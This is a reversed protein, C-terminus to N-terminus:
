KYLTLVIAICRGIVRNTDKLQHRIKGDLVNWIILSMDESGTVCFQGKVDM